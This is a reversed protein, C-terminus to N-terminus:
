KKEPQVKPLYAEAIRVLDDPKLNFHAIEDTAHKFLYDVAAAVAPDLPPPPPPPLQPNLPPRPTPRQTETPNAAQFKGYSAAQAAIQQLATRVIQDNQLGFHKIVAASAARLALAIVIFVFLVGTSAIDQLWPALQYAVTSDM